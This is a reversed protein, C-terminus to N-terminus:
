FCRQDQWYRPKGTIFAIGKEKLSKEAETDSERYIYTEYYNFIGFDYPALKSIKKYVQFNKKFEKLRERGSGYWGYFSLLIFLLIIAALIWNLYAWGYFYIIFDPLFFRLLALSIGLIPLFYRFVFNVFHKM